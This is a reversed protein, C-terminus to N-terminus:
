FKILGIITLNLECNPWNFGKSPNTHTRSHQGRRLAILAAQRGPLLISNIFMLGADIEPKSASLKIRKKKPPPPPTPPPPVFTKVM